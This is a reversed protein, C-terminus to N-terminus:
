LGLLVRLEAVDAAVEAPACARIEEESGYGWRVYATRLGHARAGEVDHARDGVMLAASADVGAQGFLAIAHAVVSAKDSRTEALDSGAIVSFFPTLGNHDLIAHAAEEWKSTALGVDRGAAALDRLLQEMGPYLPAEVMHQAYHARYANRFEDVLEAPVGLVDVIGINIPPGVFRRLRAMEPVPFGYDRLAATASALITPGSDVITGDLDFLVATM